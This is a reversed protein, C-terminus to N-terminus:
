VPLGEKEAMMKYMKWEDVVNRMSKLPDINRIMEELYLYSQIDKNWRNITNRFMQMNEFFKVYTRAGPHYLKVYPRMQMFKPPPCDYNSCVMIVQGDKDMYMEPHDLENGELQTHWKYFIDKYKLAHSPPITKQINFKKVFQNRNQFIQKKIPNDIINFGGWYCRFLHPYDTQNRFLATQNKM